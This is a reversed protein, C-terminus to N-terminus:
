SLSNEFLIPSNEKKKETKRRAPPSFLSSWSGSLVPSMSSFFSNPSHGSLTTSLDRPEGKLTVHTFKVGFDKLLFYLSLYVMVWMGCQGGPPARAPLISGKPGLEYTGKETDLPLVVSAAM